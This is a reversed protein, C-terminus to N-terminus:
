LGLLELVYCWIMFLWICVGSGLILLVIKFFMKWEDYDIFMFEGSKNKM